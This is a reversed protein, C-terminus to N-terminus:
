QGGIQNAIAAWRDLLAPMADDALHDLFQGITNIQKRCHPCGPVVVGKGGQAMSPPNDVFHSFDHRRIEQQIAALLVSKQV